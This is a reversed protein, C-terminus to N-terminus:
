VGRRTRSPAYSGSFSGNQQRRLGGAGFRSAFESKGRDGRETAERRALANPGSAASLTNSSTSMTKAGTSM